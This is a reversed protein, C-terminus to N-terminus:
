LLFRALQLLDTSMKCRSTALQNHLRTIECFKQVPREQSSIINVRFSSSNARLLSSYFLSLLDRTPSFVRNDPFCGPVFYWKELEAPPYSHNITLLKPCSPSNNLVRVLIKFQVLTKMLMSSLSVVACGPKGSKM